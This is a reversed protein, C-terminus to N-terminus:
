SKWARRRTCTTTVARQCCSRLREGRSLHRERSTVKESSHVMCFNPSGHNSIFRQRRGRESTYEHTADSGVCRIAIM